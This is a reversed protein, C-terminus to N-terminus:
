KLVEGERWWLLSDCTKCWKQHLMLGDPLSTHWPRLGTPAWKKWVWSHGARTCVAPWAELFGDFGPWRHNEIFVLGGFRVSEPPDLFQSLLIIFLITWLTALIWRGSPVLGIATCPVLFGVLLGRIDWLGLDGTVTLRRRHNLKINRFYPSLEHM